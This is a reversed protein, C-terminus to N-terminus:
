MALEIFGLTEHMGPLREVLLSWKWGLVEPKLLEGEGSGAGCTAWVYVAVWNSLISSAFFHLGVPAPHLDSRLSV